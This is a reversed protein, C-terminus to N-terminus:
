ITFMKEQLSCIYEEFTDGIGLGVLQHCASDLTSTDTKSLYAEFNKIMEQKQEKSSKSYQEFWLNSVIEGIIYRFRYKSYHNHTNNEEKREAMFKCRNMLSKYKDTKIFPTKIKKVFHNFSDVTIPCSVNDLIQYEECILDLNDLLYNHRKNEFNKYDENSIINNDLLYEMFLNEIIHSEIEGICDRQPDNLSHYYDKLSKNNNQKILEITKLNRGSIAHSLEHTAVRIGELTGDIGIQVDIYKNDDSTKVRSNKRRPDNSDTIIQVKYYPNPNEKDLISNIRQSLTPSLQKYFDKVIKILEDESLNFLKEKYIKKFGESEKRIERLCDIASMKGYHADHLYNKFDHAQVKECNKDLKQVFNDDYIYGNFEFKM